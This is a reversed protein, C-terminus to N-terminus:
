TLLDNYLRQFDDNSYYHFTISGKDGRSKIEVKTGFTEMLRNELDKTNPDSPPKSIKKAKISSEKSLKEIQRVTLNDQIVKRLAALMSERSQFALLARAHGSSLTGRSVYQQIEEPLELLRLCNTITSRQKGVRKALDEHTINELKRMAQYAKAEEIPNLNERQINEIIALQLLKNEPVDLIISSITKLGLAVCAQYRREGAIIEYEPGDKKLLIPQLLGNERISDILDKLAEPEISSRPQFRNKKIKNLEIEEVSKEKSFVKSTDGLLVDLGRGLKKEQM